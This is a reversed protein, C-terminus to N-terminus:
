TVNEPIEVLLDIGELIAGPIESVPKKIKNTSADYNNIANKLVEIDDTFNTHLPNIIRKNDQWLHFTAIQIKDGPNVFKPLSNEVARFFTNVQEIRQENNISEILILVCKNKKSYNITDSVQVMSISDIRVENLDKIKFFDYSTEKKFNPNRNYIDFSVSPYETVDVESNVKIQAQLSLFSFFLLCFNLVLHRLQVIM